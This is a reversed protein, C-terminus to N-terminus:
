FCNIYWFMTAPESWTWTFQHLTHLRFEIGGNPVRKKWWVPLRSSERRRPFSMTRSQQYYFESSNVTDYNYYIAHESICTPEDDTADNSLRSQTVNMSNTARTRHRRKYCAEKMTRTTSQIGVKTPIVCAPLAM